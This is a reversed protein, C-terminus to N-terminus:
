DVERAIREAQVAAQLRAKLDPDDEVSTSAPHQRVWANVLGRYQELVMAWAQGDRDCVARRLLELCYREDALEGRQYRGTQDACARALRPLSLTGPDDDFTM